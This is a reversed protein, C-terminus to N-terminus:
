SCVGHIGSELIMFNMANIIHFFLVIKKCGISFVSQSYDDRKMDCSIFLLM